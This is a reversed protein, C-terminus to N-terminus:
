EALRVRYTGDPNAMGNTITTQTVATQASVVGSVSTYIPSSRLDGATYEVQYKKGAVSEWAVTANLNTDAEIWAMIFMSMANTLETGARFEEGDPSGDADSDTNTPNSGLSGEWSNNVNDGDFDRPDIPNTTPGVTVLLVQISDSKFPLVQSDAYFTAQTITPANFVRVFMGTRSNASINPRPYALSVDFIGPNVLDPSTLHGIFSSGGKVPPNTVNPTGDYNPPRVASNSAPTAYLVQVFDRESPSSLASGRLLNGYEDRIPTETAIHLPTPVQGLLATSSFILATLIAGATTASSKWPSSRHSPKRAGRMGVHLGGLLIIVFLMLSGTGPEPVVTFTNTMTTSFNGIFDVDAYGSGDDVAEHVTSTGWAVLGTTMLTSDFFRIYLYPIDDTNFAFTGSTYFTGPTGLNSPMGIRVAGIYVDDNQVSTPSFNGGPTGIVPGDNVDDVSGFIYVWSGDQLPQNFSDYISYTVYATLLVYGANAATVVFLLALLCCVWVM